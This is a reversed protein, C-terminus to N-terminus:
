ALNVPERPGTELKAQAAEVHVTFYNPANGNAAWAGPLQATLTLPGTEATAEPLPIRGLADVKTHQARALLIAQAPSDPQVKKSPVALIAVLVLVAASSLIVVTRNM